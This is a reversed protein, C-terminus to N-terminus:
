LAKELLKLVCREDSSLYSRGAVEKVTQRITRLDDSEMYSKIIRPDIYSSLAIAPTNGLKRAVKQVCITVAKKREQETKAREVAALEASALLTGGWTRFDKASFEEGMIEKIYANVDQSKVRTLKGADDYYKFVEYGPLEDLHKILKAVQRDTVRKHQHQGSKGMFDFTVTDGSITIHKSRITSLGYSQNEKAYEENGIRFYAEDMLRVICALVKERDLGPRSLHENTIRRMKPLAEAFHLIKEFKRKEQRARFKPNYLYQLRGAKDFGTAIINANKSRSIRVEKWAPPIALSDFYAILAKNKILGEDDYYEYRKRGVKHRDIHRSRGM